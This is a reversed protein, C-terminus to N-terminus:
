DTKMSEVYQQRVTICRNDADMRNDGEIDECFGEFCLESDILGKKWFHNDSWQEDCQANQFVIFM